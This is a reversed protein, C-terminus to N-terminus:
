VSNDLCETGGETALFVKLSQAAVPHAQGTLSLAEAPVAGNQESSDLCPQWLYGPPLVIEHEAAAPNLALLVLEDGTSWLLAFPLAGSGADAHWDPESMPQGDFRRWSLRPEALQVDPETVAETESQESSDSWPKHGFSRQQFLKLRGRLDSVRRLLGLHNGAEQQWDVWGVPNNQCYANNNGGQSNKVEDGALLMPTGQALLVTALLARARRDRAENIQREDTRGEVGLNDSLNHNHGDANAECNAENHKEAYSVLDQLTFGDHSTVFNVGTLADRGNHEFLDSSGHLRRSLEAQAGADNRWYSRAADRFKDNWELWPRAFAGTQYGGPGVDWPEAILTRSALVPDAQMAAFLPHQPNFGDADRGLSVALDFRFGDIGFEEVWYRLSDLVLRQVVPSNGNLTNGCGTDNVYGAGSAPQKYYSRNDLGRYCLSPGDAGGEATHNFVVDLLVEINADHLERVMAKLEARACGGDSAYLAHPIFYNLTNYGWYNTLGNGVLHPEDLFSHIPLLQLSTVGMARLHSIVCPSGAGAYRGRALEPVDPHQATLGRLHAEYILRRDRAPTLVAPSDADNVIVVSKPVFSANDLGFSDAAVIEAAAPDGSDFQAVANLPSGLYEGTMARAYPDLLLRNPNFYHGAEPAFPGHARFGYRAGPALGPLYGHWVGGDCASFNFRRTETGASDFLCLEILEASDSHVGFLVGEGNFRAGLITSDGSALEAAAVESQRKRIASM